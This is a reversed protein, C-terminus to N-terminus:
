GRRIVGTLMAVVLLVTAFFALCCALFILAGGESSIMNLIKLMVEKKWDEKPDLEFKKSM